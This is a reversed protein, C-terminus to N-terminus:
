SSHLNEVCWSAVAEGFRAPDFNWELAHADSDFAELTVLSPLRRALAEADRFPAVRDQRSHIILTPQKLPSTTEFALDAFRIPETTGLWRSAAPNSLLGTAVAAVVAPLRAQRVNENISSKWNLIPAILILGDVDAGASSRLICSLALTAGLSWGVLIIRRAGQEKAHYVAAEIDPWETQGLDSGVKPGQPNDPDGRYSPVLSTFGLQNTTHVSRLVAERGSMAGHVHIAWVDSGKSEPVRVEWAPASAGQVYIRVDAVVAGTASPTGFVDGTVRVTKAAVLGPSARTVEREVWSNSPGAATIAGMTAHSREQNFLVGMPGAFSSLPTRALRISGTAFGLVETEPQRRPFIVRKAVVWGLAVVVCAAVVLAGVGVLAIILIM